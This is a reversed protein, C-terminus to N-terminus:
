FGREATDWDGGFEREQQRYDYCWGDWAVAADRLADHARTVAAVSARWMNDPGSELAKMAEAATNQAAAYARMLPAGEALAGTVYRVWRPVQWAQEMARYHDHIEM